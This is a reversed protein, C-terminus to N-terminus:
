STPESAPLRVIPTTIHRRFPSQTSYLRSTSDVVTGTGASQAVAASPISSTYQANPGLHDSFSAGLGLKCNNLNKDKVVVILKAAPDISPPLIMDEPFAFNFFVSAPSDGSARLRVGAWNDPTSRPNDITTTDNDHQSPAVWVTNAQAPAIFAAQTALVLGLAYMPGALFANSVPCQPFARKLRSGKM